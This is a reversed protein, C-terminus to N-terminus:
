VDFKSKRQRFFGKFQPHDREFKRAYFARYNNNLKFCDGTATVGTKWRLIEFLSGAGYHKFGKRITQMALRKFAAYVQPNAEHYSCVNGRDLSLELQSPANM